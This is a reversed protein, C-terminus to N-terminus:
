KKTNNPVKLFDCIASVIKGIREVAGDDSKTPTLRVVTEAFAVLAVVSGLIGVYNEVIFQIVEKM